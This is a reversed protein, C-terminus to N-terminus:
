KTNSWGCKEKFLMLQNLHDLPSLIEEVMITGGDDRTDYMMYFTRISSVDVDGNLEYSESGIAANAPSDSYGWVTITIIMRGDKDIDLLGTSIHEDESLDVEKKFAEVAAHDRINVATSQDIPLCSFKNGKCEKQIISKSTMKEFSLPKGWDNMNLLREREASDFDEEASYVAFCIDEYYYVKEKDQRQCVGYAYLTKTSNGFARYYFGSNGFTVKFLTRGESDSELVQTKIGTSGLEPISYAAETYEAYDNGYYPYPEGMRGFFCGCTGSAILVGLVAAVTIIMLRNKYTM